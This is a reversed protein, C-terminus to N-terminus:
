ASIRLAALRETEGWNLQKTIANAAQKRVEKPSKGYKASFAKSFYSASVFGVMFAVESVGGANQGLLQYARELRYNRMFTSTSQNGIAKLKRHLQTRSMALEAALDEVSFLENTLNKAMANHVSNLFQDEMSTAETVPSFAIMENRFHARMQKRGSFLREMWARLECIEPRRDLLTDAGAQLAAIRNPTNNEGLMIVPLHSTLTEDNLKRCVEMGSVGELGIAIPDVACIVMDPKLQTAMSLGDPGNAAEIVRYTPELSFRIFDRLDPNSEILLILNGTGENTDWDMSVSSDTRITGVELAWAPMSDNLSEMPAEVTFEQYRPILVSIETGLGEITNVKIHGAHLDVMKKVFPLGLGSASKGSVSEFIFPLQAESIGCGSDQVSIRLMADDSERMEIKLKVMGGRATFKIANSLLNNLVEALMNQDVDAELEEFATDISLNLGKEICLPKFGAVHSKIFSVIDMRRAALKTKGEQLSQLAIVQNLSRMVDKANRLAIEAQRRTISEESDAAIQELPGLILSAPLRLGRAIEVLDTDAAMQTAAPNVADVNSIRASAPAPDNQATGFSHTSNEM